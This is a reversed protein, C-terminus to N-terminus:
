PEEASSLGLKTQWLGCECYVFPMAAIGSELLYIENLLRWKECACGPDFVWAAAINVQGLKGM